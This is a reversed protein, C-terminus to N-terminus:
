VSAAHEGRALFRAGLWAGTAHEVEQRWAQSSFTHDAAAFRMCDVQQSALLQSWVASQTMAAEFEAAVFDRGSLLVLVPRGARRLSEPLRQALPRSTDDHETRDAQPAAGRARRLMDWLGGLARRPDLRGSLLKRWFAPDVVRKLYYHKLMTQAEGAESRVWPNLLVLGVVQADHEAHFAAATAGDCLGWLVVRKVTPCASQFQAIAAGIDDSVALFSRMSGGSDGMGRFDFRMTPVGAQALARALLLFQRHSGVRYQPGGVVVLVGLDHDPARAPETLLAVLQAQQLGFSFAREVPKM